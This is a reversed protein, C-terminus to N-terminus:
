NYLKFESFKRPWEERPCFAIAIEENFFKDETVIVNDPVNKAADFDEKSVKCVVKFKDHECWHQMRPDNEFKKYCWLPAHAVSVMAVGLPIDSRVLIYMKM